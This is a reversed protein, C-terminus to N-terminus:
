REATAAELADERRSYGLTVRRIVGWRVEFCDFTHQDIHVGSERGSGHWHIACVVTDGCDIYEAIDARLDPFSDLWDEWVRRVAEIGHVDPPADPAHQLDSWHVEPDYANVLADLDRRLFDETARRVLEVNEQSM